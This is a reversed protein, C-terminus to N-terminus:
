QLLSRWSAKSTKVDAVAKPPLVGFGRLRGDGENKHSNGDEKMGQQM